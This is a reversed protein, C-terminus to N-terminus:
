LPQPTVTTTSSDGSEPLSLPILPVDQITQIGQFIQLDKFVALQYGPHEVVIQYDIYPTSDDPTLGMSDTATLKIPGAIGSANTIRVALLEKQNNKTIFYVVVTADPVPLQAASTFTRVILSGTQPM